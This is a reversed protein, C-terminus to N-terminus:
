EIAYWLFYWLEADSAKTLPIWWHGIFGGGMPGTVRFIDGNSSTMMNRPLTDANILWVKFSSRLIITMTQQSKTRTIRRFVYVVDYYNIRITTIHTLHYGGIYAYVNISM